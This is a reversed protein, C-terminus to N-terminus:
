DEEACLEKYHKWLELGQENLARSVVGPHNKHVNLTDLLRFAWKAAKLLEVNEKCLKTHRREAHTSSLDRRNRDLYDGEM